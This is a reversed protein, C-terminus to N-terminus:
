DLAALGAGKSTEGGMNGACRCVQALRGAHLEKQPDILLSCVLCGGNVPTTTAVPEKRNIINRISM